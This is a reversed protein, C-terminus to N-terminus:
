KGEDLEGRSKRLEQLLEFTAQSLEVKHKNLLYEFKGTDCNKWFKWASLFKEAVEESVIVGTHSVDVRTEIKNQLQQEIIKNALELAQQSISIIEQENTDTM